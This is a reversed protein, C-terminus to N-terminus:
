CRSCVLAVIRVSEDRVVLKKFLRFHDILSLMYPAIFIPNMKESRQIKEKGNMKNNREHLFGCRELSRTM